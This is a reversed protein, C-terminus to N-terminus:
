LERVPRRFGILAVGILGSALLLLSAPEPAPNTTEPTVTGTLDWLPGGLYVLGGVPGGEFPLSYFAFPAFDLQLEGGGATFDFFTASCALLGPCNFFVSAGPDTSSGYGDPVIGAYYSWPGVVKLTTQDFEFSGTIPSDFPFVTGSFSFDTINDARAAPAFFVVLGALVLLAKNLNLNVVAEL